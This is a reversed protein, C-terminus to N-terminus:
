VTTTTHLEDPLKQEVEGGEEWRGMVEGSCSFSELKRLFHFFSLPWDGNWFKMIELEKDLGNGTEKVFELDFDDM